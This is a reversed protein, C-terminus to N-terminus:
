APSLAINESGNTFRPKQGSPAELRSSGWSIPWWRALSARNSPSGNM